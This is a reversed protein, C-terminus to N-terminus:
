GGFIRRWWPREERERLERVDEPTGVLNGHLIVKTPKFDTTVGLEKRVARTFRYTLERQHEDADAMDSEDIESDQNKLERYFGEAHQFAEYARQFVAGSSLLEMESLLRWLKEYDFRDGFRAREVENLFDRYLTLRETEFKLLDERKWRRKDQARQLLGNLFGGLVVGILGFIAASM